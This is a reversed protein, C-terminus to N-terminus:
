IQESESKNKPRMGSNVKLAGSSEHRYKRIFRFLYYLTIFFSFHFIIIPVASVLVIIWEFSLNVKENQWISKLALYDIAIWSISLLGLILTTTASTKLKKIIKEM